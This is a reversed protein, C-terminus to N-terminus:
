CVAGFVPFLLLSISVVCVCAIVDPQSWFLDLRVLMQIQIYDFPLLIRRQGAVRNTDGMSNVIERDASIYREMELEFHIIDYVLLVHYILSHAKLIFMLANVNLDM